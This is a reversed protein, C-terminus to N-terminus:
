FWASFKKALELYQTVFQQTKEKRNNESNIHIDEVVVAIEKALELAEKETTEVFYAVSKELTYTLIHLEHLESADFNKKSQIEATKDIFIQKAEALSTVDPVILHQVPEEKTSEGAMLPSIFLITLLL